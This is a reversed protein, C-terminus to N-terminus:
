IKVVNAINTSLLHDLLPPRFKTSLFFVKKLLLPTAILDFVPKRITKNSATNRKTHAYPGNVLGAAAASGTFIPTIV